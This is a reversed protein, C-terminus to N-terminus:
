TITAVEHSQQTARGGGVGYPGGRVAVALQQRAAETLRAKYWVAEPADDPLGTMYQVSAWLAM